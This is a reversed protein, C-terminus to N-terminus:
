TLEEGESRIEPGYPLGLLFEYAQLLREEAEETFEYDLIVIYALM